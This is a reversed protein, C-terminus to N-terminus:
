TIKTMKRTRNKKKRGERGKGEEGKRKEETEPCCHKTIYGLSTGM